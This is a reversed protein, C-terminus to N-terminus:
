SASRAGNTGGMGLLTAIREHHQEPSGYNGRNVTARRLFLHIDHEWTVGIGGHMQVCDQMIETSHSGVYAKAASARQPADAADAQVARAAGDTVAHSAELWLKMDAFRHKLAQYSSLPRGFSYRDDVYELTFELVRSTAGASEACALVCAVQLQRELDAAAGGLSGVVAADGVGVADLDVRAFRRVLDLGDLPTVEVGEASAPVLFQTPGEDTTASVLLHDAQAGAEVPTKTGRLIWGDGTREATCAPTVETHGVGIEAHAWAAVSHGSLLAALVEARQAESGSRGITDAVVNTPVLPGPAVSRGLEEAIVALDRLGEGSLSGGGDAEPVLMSTWGLEAGQRWYDDEYGAPEAELRRVETLPCAADLFKRTTSRFFEQDDSLDLDM